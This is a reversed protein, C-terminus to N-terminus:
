AAVLELEPRVAAEAKRTAGLRGRTLGILTVAAVLVTGFLAVDVTTSDAALVLNDISATFSAHLLICLLISGSANYLWTYFFALVFPFVTALPTGYAPIHWAGWLAGLVLTARLPTHREQLRPLAFGRWGPEELGGGLVAIFVLTGVYALRAPLLSLDVEHGLLVLELNVVALLLLPLGLAYAYFRAAVRALEQDGRAV